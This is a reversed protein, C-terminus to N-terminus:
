FKGSIGSVTPPMLLNPLLTMSGPSHWVLSSRHVKVSTFPPVISWQKQTTNVNLVETERALGLNTHEVNMGGASSPPCWIHLGFHSAFGRGSVLFLLSCRSTEQTIGLWFNLALPFQTTSRHMGLRSPGLQRGVSEAALSRPTGTPALWFHSSFFIQQINEDRHEELSRSLYVPSCGSILRTNTCTDSRSARRM